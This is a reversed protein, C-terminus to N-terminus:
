VVERQRYVVRYAEGDLVNIAVDDVGEGGLFAEKESRHILLEGDLPCDSNTGTARLCDFM